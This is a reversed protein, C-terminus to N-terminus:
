RTFLWRLIRGLVRDRVRERAKERERARRIFALLEYYEGDTMSHFTHQDLTEAVLKGSCTALVRAGKPVRDPTQAIDFNFYGPQGTAYVLQM